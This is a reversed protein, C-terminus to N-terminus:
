FLIHSPPRCLCVIMYQLAEYLCLSLCCFHRNNWGIASSKRPMIGYFRHTGAHTAPLEPPFCRATQSMLLVVLYHLPMWQRCATTWPVLTPHPPGDRKIPLIRMALRPSIATRMTRAQASIPMVETAM